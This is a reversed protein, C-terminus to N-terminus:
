RCEKGVRREESRTLLAILFAMRMLKLSREEAAMFLHGRPNLAPRHKIYPTEPSHSIPLRGAAHPRAAGRTTVSPFSTCSITPFPPGTAVRVVGVKGPCNGLSKDM